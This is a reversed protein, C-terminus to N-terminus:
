KWQESCGDAGLMVDMLWRPFGETWYAWNFIYGRTNVLLMELCETTVSHIDASFRGSQIKMDFDEPNNRLQHGPITSRNLLLKMVQWFINFASVVSLFNVM